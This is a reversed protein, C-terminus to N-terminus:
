QYHKLLTEIQKIPFPLDRSVAESATIMSFNDYDHVAYNRMAIMERWPLESHKKQFNESTKRAAEGIIQFCREVAKDAMRSKPQTSFDIADQAAELMHKLRLIDRDTQPPTM